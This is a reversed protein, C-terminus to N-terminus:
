QINAPSKLLMSCALSLCPPEALVVMLLLSNSAQFLSRRLSPHLSANWIPVYTLRESLAKVHDLACLSADMIWDLISLIYMGIRMSFMPPVVSIKGVRDFTDSWAPTIRWKLPSGLCFFLLGAKKLLPRSTLGSVLAASSSVQFFVTPSSVSVVHFWFTTLALVAM